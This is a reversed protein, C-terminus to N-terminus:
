INPSRKAHWYIKQSETNKEINQREVNEVEVFFMYWIFKYLMFLM